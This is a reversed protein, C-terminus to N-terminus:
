PQGELGMESFSRAVDGRPAASRCRRRDSHKHSEAKAHLSQRDFDKLVAGVRPKCMM